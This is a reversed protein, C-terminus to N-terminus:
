NIREFYLYSTEYVVLYYYNDSVDHPYYPTIIIGNDDSYSIPIANTKPDADQLNIIDISTIIDEDYKYFSIRFYKNDKLTKDEVVNVFNSSNYEDETIEDIELHYCVSDSNSEFNGNVFYNRKRNVCSTLTVLTVILTILCLAKKIRAM